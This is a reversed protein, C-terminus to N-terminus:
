MEFKRKIKEILDIDANLNQLLKITLERQTSVGWSFGEQHGEYREASIEIADTKLIIGYGTESLVIEGKWVDTEQYATVIDGVILQNSKIDYNSIYYSGDDNRMNTDIFVFKM